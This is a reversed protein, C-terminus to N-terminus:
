KDHGRTSDEIFKKRMRLITLRSPRSIRHIQYIGVAYPYNAMWIDKSGLFAGFNNYNSFSHEDMLNNIVSDHIPCYPYNM